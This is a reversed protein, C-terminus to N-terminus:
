LLFSGTCNSGCKNVMLGAENLRMKGDAVDWFLRKRDRTVVTVFYAGARSYDYGPLRISRRRRVITMTGTSCMPGSACAM